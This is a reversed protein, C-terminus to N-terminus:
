GNVSSAMAGSSQHHSISREVLDHIVRGLGANMLRHHDVLWDLQGTKFEQALAVSPGETQFRTRSASLTRLFKQHAAKHLPANRDRCLDMAEEERRFIRIALLGVLRFRHEVPPGEEHNLLAVQLQELAGVLDPFSADLDNLHFSIGALRSIANM